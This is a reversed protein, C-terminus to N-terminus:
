NQEYQPEAAQQIRKSAIEFYDPDIEMGIFKRSLNVAAIGTSGCGMCSDLVVDGGVTYMSILQELLTVPKETPHQTQSPHLKKVTMVSTPYKLTSGARGTDLNRFSGYNNNVLAKARYATGRGHLPAGRHFQPTYHPLRDYFIAIQEHQRLPMRKANLFGTTLVKDWVLDYRYMRRNSNVLDVFFTGQCFLAICANPKAVRIYQEWLSKLPLPQDKSNHTCGYPLDTLIMDVSHDPLDSMLQLCDGFLLQYDANM